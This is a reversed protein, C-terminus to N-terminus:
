GDIKELELSAREILEHMKKKYNIKFHGYFPTHDEENAEKMIEKLNNLVEDLLQLRERAKIMIVMGEEITKIDEEHKLKLRELEEKKNDKQLNKIFDHITMGCGCKEHSLMGGLPAQCTDFDYAHFGLSHNCIPCFIDKAM